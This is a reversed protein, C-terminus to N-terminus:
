VALVGEASIWDLSLNTVSVKPKMSNHCQNMAYKTM